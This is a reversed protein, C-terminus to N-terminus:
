PSALPPLDEGPAIGAIAIFVTAGGLRLLRETCEEAEGEGIQAAFTRMDVCDNAGLGAGEGTGTRDM